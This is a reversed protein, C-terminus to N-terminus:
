YEELKKRCRYRVRSVAKAIADESEYKVINATSIEKTFRNEDITIEYIKETKNLYEIYIREWGDANIKEALERPKIGFLDICLFSM